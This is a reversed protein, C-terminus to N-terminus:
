ASAEYVLYASGNKFTRSRTLRLKQKKSQDGFLSVGSGLIVPIVLLQYEDILGERALASVISGSGMITIPGDGGLDDRQHSKLKKVETVLDGKSLHTNQWSASSLTRSFVIKPRTNMHKAVVPMRAAAVPTPWFSAMMEYTLRGFLFPGGGGSANGAVWDDFEADPAHDHTWSVDGDKTKFFGDVSVQNFMTLRRMGM